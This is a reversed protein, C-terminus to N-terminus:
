SLFAGCGFYLTELNCLKLTKPYFRVEAKGSQFM